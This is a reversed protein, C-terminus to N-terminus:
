ANSREKQLDYHEEGNKSRTNTITDLSSRPASMTIGDMPSVHKATNGAIQFFVLKKGASGADRLIRSKINERSIESFYRARQLRMPIAKIRILSM